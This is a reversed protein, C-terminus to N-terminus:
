RGISANIRADFFKGVGYERRRFFKEPNPGIIQLEPHQQQVDLAIHMEKTCGTSYTADKGSWAAPVKEGMLEFSTEIDEVTQFRWVDILGSRQVREWMYMLDDADMGHEFYEAPNIILTNELRQRLYAVFTNLIELAKRTQGPLSGIIASYFMVSKGRSKAQRMSRIIGESLELLQSETFKFASDSKPKHVLQLPEGNQRYFCLVDRSLAHGNGVLRRYNPIGRAMVLDSEKWARAFTVSTRYLNLRERTGDSIVVFQNERQVKLLENKTVQSNNLFHAGELAQALVQDHEIDWFTPSYFDFGEKLALIVRHRQQLLTRIILLDFIIGGSDHPLYLIKMPERRAPGFVEALLDDAEPCVAQLNDQQLPAESCDPTRWITEWTALCLLRRLELRDLQWRLESIHACGMLASPCANLTENLDPSDIFDQARRNWLQKHERLPDEVATQALFITLLQKLLRSPITFSAHLSQRFKHRCLAAVRKRLYPDPVHDHILRVLARWVSRYESLLRESLDNQLLERLMEDSCPAFVQGEDLVVMFRLQELSANEEPKTFYELHNEIMFHLLWADLYPDRGYRLELVSSFSPLEPM